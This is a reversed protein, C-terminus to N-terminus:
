LAWLFKKDWNENNRGECFTLSNKTSFFSSNTQWSAGVHTMTFTNTSFHHSSKDRIKDETCARGIHSKIFKDDYKERMHHFNKWRKGVAVVNFLKKTRQRHYKKIISRAKEKRVTIETLSLTFLLSRPFLFTMTCINISCVHISYTSSSRWEGPILFSLSHTHPHPYLSSSFLLHLSTNLLTLSMEGRRHIRM